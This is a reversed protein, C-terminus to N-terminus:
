VKEIIEFLHRLPEPDFHKSELYSAVSNEAAHTTDESLYFATLRTPM